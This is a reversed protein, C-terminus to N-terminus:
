KQAQAESDAVLGFKLCEVMGDAHTELEVCRVEPFTGRKVKDNLLPLPTQVLAEVPTPSLPRASPHWMAVPLPELGCAARTDLPANRPVNVIHVGDDALRRLQRASYRSRYEVRGISDIRENKHQSVILCANQTQGHVFSAALLVVGFFICNLTKM